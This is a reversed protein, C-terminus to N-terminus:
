GNYKRRNGMGHASAGDYDVCGSEAEEAEECMADMMKLFATEVEEAPRGYRKMSEAKLEAAMRVPKDPPFTIGQIWGTAKRNQMINAYVQYRPLLMFDEETLGPVLRVMEKADTGNLGFVIKNRANADVGAKIEPPLQGRYQHALTM